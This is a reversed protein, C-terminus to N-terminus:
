EHHGGKKNLLAIEKTHNLEILIQSLDEFQKNNITEAVRKEFKQTQNPNKILWENMDNKFQDLDVGDDYIIVKPLQFLMKQEPTLRSPMESRSNYTPVLVTESQNQGQVQNVLGLFGLLILTQSLTIKKM